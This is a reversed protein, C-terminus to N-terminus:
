IDSIKMLSLIPYFFEDWPDGYSMVLSVLHHGVTTAIASEEMKNKCSHHLIKRTCWYLYILKDISHWLCLCKQVVSRGVAGRPLALSRCYRCGSCM